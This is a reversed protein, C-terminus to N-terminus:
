LSSLFDLASSQLRPRRMSAYLCRESCPEGLEGVAFMDTAAAHLMGDGASGLSPLPVLSSCSLFMLSARLTSLSHVTSSTATALLLNRPQTALSSVFPLIFALPTPSLIHIYMVLSVFVERCRERCRRSISLDILKRRAASCANGLPLLLGNRAFRGIGTGSTAFLRSARLKEKRLTM